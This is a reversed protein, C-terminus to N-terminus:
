NKRIRDQEEGSGTDQHTPTKATSNGFSRSYTLRVIEYRANEPYIHVTSKIDFVEQTLAGYHVNFMGTQLLDAIALQFTGGDKKLEKKIGLGLTGYHEIRVTANYSPGNYIGSLEISITHPLRFTQTSSFSYGWYSGEAPQLTYSLHYQRYGGVASYNMTWWPNVKVPVNIDLTINNQWDMNQPSVYLLTKDPSQTLQYRAIPDIDRSLLLSISKNHSSYGIRVNHTITPKLLPNGTFLAAPDSYGVFSALDNYSPRSIRKTYSLNLDSNENIKKTFFLSPFLTGLTRNVPITSTLRTDSYEYRAGLILNTTSDPKTELSAYAAYIGEKMAIRDSTEPRVIWNGNLLSSIASSSSDRTYTGKVGAQLKSAPTLQKTYDLKLVGVKISTRATTQQLPAALTDDLGAKSGDANEFSSYITSPNNNYFYLYDIDANIKEGPRFTRELYVSSVLNNWRNSSQTQGKFLLLSDPLIDYNTNDNSASTSYSNNYLVSAGVTTKPNLRLDLGLNVNHTTYISHGSGWVYVDMPGGLLPMDQTSYIYSSSLSNNRSFTYAGYLHLQQTNHALSLNATEKDRWGYGGTLSLNGNNGPRHGKKLVINILGGSGEADYGAPPTTLLEIKEIDDASLSGLFSVLQGVTMHTLRGDLM